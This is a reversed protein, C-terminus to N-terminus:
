QAENGTVADGAPCDGVRRGTVTRTMEYDGEGSFYTTTSVEAEFSEATSTGNVSQLVQGQQSPRRCELQLAIRGNRVFSSTASCEDGDEAFLAPPIEGGEAVCARTTGTAGQSLTTGPATEDTSGLHAVTWTAEYEGPTLAARQQQDEQQQPAEQSCGALVICAAFAGIIRQM